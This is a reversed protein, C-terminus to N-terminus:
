AVIREGTITELYQQPLSREYISLATKVITLYQDLDGGEVRRWTSPMYRVMISLAYLLCFATVRYENFDALAPLLLAGSNEFASHHIPMVEQWYTAGPHDVRARFIKGEVQDPLRSLEALPWGAGEIREQSIMGSRDVLKIYTSETQQQSKFSPVRSAEMDYVPMIWSPECYFVEAFLDALEPLTAFLDRVTCFAGEPLKEIGDEAKLKATPFQRVDHGLFAAWRPLFGSALVGVIMESFGRVQTGFTYLGHGQKTYGEIEDLDVPGSPSALIEAFSLALTGYYLRIIKRNLSENQASRFYDSANRLTFALGEGKTKAAEPSITVNQERARRLILKEALHTSSFQDLRAWVSMLPNEAKIRRVNSPRPKIPTHAAAPFLEKNWGIVVSYFEDVPVVPKTLGYIFSEPMYLDGNTFTRDIEADLKKYVRNDTASSYLLAVQKKVGLKTATVVLYEGDEVTQTIEATWGHTRFPKVIQQEISDRLIAMRHEAGTGGM